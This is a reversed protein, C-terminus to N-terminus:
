DRSPMFRTVRCSLAEADEEIPVKGDSTLLFDDITRLMGYSKGSKVATMVRLSTKHGKLSDFLGVLYNIDANFSFGESIGKTGSKTGNHDEEIPDCPVPFSTVKGFPGSARIMITKNTSDYEFRVRDANAGMSDRVYRLARLIDGVALNLIYHDRNLSLYGFKEHVKEQKVWGLVAGSDNAMFIHTKTANIRVLGKSKGLFSQVSGLSKGTVQLGKDAFAPCYFFFARVGDAAFLHGNGKAWSERSADFMQVTNLHEAQAAGGKPMTSRSMSLAERLVGSAITQESELVGKLDQDFTPVFMPDVSSLEASAGDDTQYNVMFSDGSSGQEATLEISGKLHKLSATAALPLIFAGEGEVAADELPVCTMELDSRAVLTAAGDKLDVRYGAGFQSAKISVIAASELAKNLFNSDIRLKM